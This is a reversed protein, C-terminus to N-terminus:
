SGASAPYLNGEADSRTDSQRAALVNGAAIVMILVEIYQPDAIMDKFTDVSIAAGNDDEAGAVGLIVHEGLAKAVVANAESPPITDATYSFGSRPRERNLRRAAMDRLEHVRDYYAPGPPRLLVQFPEGEENITVWEGDPATRRKIKSLKAM